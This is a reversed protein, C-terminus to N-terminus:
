SEDPGGATLVDITLDKPTGDGLSELWTLERKMRAMLHERYKAAEEDTMMAIALAHDDIMICKHELYKTPIGACVNVCAIIREANAKSGECCTNTRAFHEHTGLGLEDLAYFYYHDTGHLSHLLEFHWPEQAWPHEDPLEAKPDPM